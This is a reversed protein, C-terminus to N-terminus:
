IFLLPQDYRHDDKEQDRIYEKVTEEDPKIASKGRMHGIVQAVSYEPPLLVAVAGALEDRM